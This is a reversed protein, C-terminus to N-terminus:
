AFWPLISKWRSTGSMLRRSKRVAAVMSRSDSQGWQKELADFRGTMSLGEAVVFEMQVRIRQFFAARSYGGKILEPNNEYVGVVYYGGSFKVDVASAATSFAVILGLSLLVVLLKKM